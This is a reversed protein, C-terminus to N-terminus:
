VNQLQFANEEAESSTSRGLKSFSSTTAYNKKLTQQEKSIKSQDHNLRAKSESACFCWMISMNFPIHLTQIVSYRKVNLEGGDILCILKIVSKSDERDFLNFELGLFLITIKSYRLKKEIANM